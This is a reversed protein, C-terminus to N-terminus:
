YFALNDNGEFNINEFVAENTVNFNVYASNIM